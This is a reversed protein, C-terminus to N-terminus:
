EYLQKSFTGESYRFFNHPSSVPTGFGIKKLNDAGQLKEGQNRKSKRLTSKTYLKKLRGLKM